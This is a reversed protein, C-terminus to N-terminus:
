HLDLTCSLQFFLQPPPSHTSLHPLHPSFRLYSHLPPDVDVHQHSPLDRPLLSLSAAPEARGLLMTRPCTVAVLLQMQVGDRQTDPDGRGAVTLHLRGAKVGALSNQRLSPCSCNEDVGESATRRGCRSMGAQKRQRRSWQVCTFIIVQPRLRMGLHRTELICRCIM